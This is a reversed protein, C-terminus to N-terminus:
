MSGCGGRAFALNEHIPLGEAVRGDAVVARARPVEVGGVNNTSLQAERCCDVEVPACTLKPAARVVVPDPASDPACAVLCADKVTGVIWGNGTPAIM